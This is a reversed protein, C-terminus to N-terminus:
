CGPPDTLMLFSARNGVLGETPIPLLIVPFREDKRGFTKKMLTLRKIDESLPLSLTSIISLYLYVFLKVMEKKIGDLVSLINIYLIPISAM